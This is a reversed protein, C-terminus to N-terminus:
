SVYYGNSLGIVINDNKRANPQRADSGDKSEFSNIYFLISKKSNLKIIIELVAQSFDEKLKLKINKIHNYKNKISNDKTQQTLTLNLKNILGLAVRIHQYKFNILNNAM